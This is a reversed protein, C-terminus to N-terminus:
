NSFDKFTLLCHVSEFQAKRIYTFHKTQLLTMQTNVKISFNVNPSALHCEYHLESSRMRQTWDMNRNIHLEEYRM